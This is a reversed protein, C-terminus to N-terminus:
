EEDEEPPGDLKEVYEETIIDVKVWAGNQLFIPVKVVVGNSLEAPKGRPTIQDVERTNVIQLAQYRDAWRYYLPEEELTRVEVGVGPRLWQVKGEFFKPPLMLVEGSDDSFELQGDKERDFSVEKWDLDMVEM